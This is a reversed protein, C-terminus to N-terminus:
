DLEIGTLQLPPGNRNRSAKFYEINSLHSTLKEVNARDKQSSNCGFVVSTFVNPEIRYSGATLPEDEGNVFLRYEHEYAWIDYKCTACLLPAENLNLPPMTHFYWIPHIRAERVDDNRTQIAHILRSPNFGVCFGRHNKAYHSFMLVDDRKASFCGMGWDNFKQRHEEDVACDFPDNFFKPCSLALENKSFLNALKKKCRSSEDPEYYRYLTDPLPRQEIRIAYGDLENQKCSWLRKLNVFSDPSIRMYHSFTEWQVREQLYTILVDTRVPVGEDIRDPRYKLSHFEIDNSAASNDQSIVDLFVFAPIRLVEEEKFCFSVEAFQPFFTNAGTTTM